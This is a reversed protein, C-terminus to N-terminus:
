YHSSCSRSWTCCCIHMLPACTLRLIISHAQGGRNGAWCSVLQHALTLCECASTGPRPVTDDQEHSSVSLNTGAMITDSLNGVVSGLLSATGPDYQAGVLVSQYVTAPASPSIPVSSGQSSNSSEPAGGPAYSGGSSSNGSGSGGQPGPAPASSQVM